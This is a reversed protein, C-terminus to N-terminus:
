GPTSSIDYQVFTLFLQFGLILPLAALIVTGAPTTVDLHSSHWWQYGGFILGFGMLPLSSLLAISGPNFDRLFYQYFIRKFCRSFHKRSFSVLVRGIRLNSKEDGYFARMPVDVVRTRLLGLHFLMDTEFFYTPDIASLDLMRLADRDIATFGNTPDMINWYGTTLKTMFSLVSNGFLRLKPMGKLFSLAYFRNGKAYQARGELLPRILEPILAPDMQGDGDLKICLDIGTELAHAYGTMVAGGVGLNRINHLVKVRPDKCHTQVYDGSKEPCADDVVIIRHVEPGIRRIVDLIQQVVRYSPIIVAIQRQSKM